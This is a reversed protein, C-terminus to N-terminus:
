EAVCRVSFRWTRLHHNEASALPNFFFLSWATYNGTPTSTWYFGAEGVHYPTGVNETCAGAAPFFLQDRGSSFLHGNVVKQTTWRNNAEVLSLLEHVSPLRWGPPCAYQAEDFTFLGGNDTYNKTFVGSTEVNHTAWRVGNIVVGKGGGDANCSSIIFSVALLLALTYFLKKM